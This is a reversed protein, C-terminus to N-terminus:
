KYGWDRLVYQCALSLDLVIAFNRDKSHAMEARIIVTDVSKRPRFGCHDQRFAYQQRLRFDLAKEIIKRLHSLLAIPRYSPPPAM